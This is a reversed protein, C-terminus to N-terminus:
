AEIIGLHVNMPADIMISEVALITALSSNLLSEYSVCPKGIHISAIFSEVMKEQGKDQIRYKIKKKSGSQSFLIVEKFDNIQASLGSGFVEISEKPMATSGNSAYTISAISGNDFKLSLNVNDNLLPSKNSSDVGSVFISKIHSRALTSALDIFHCAEGILRGGGIDADQIWHDSAILGANVRINIVVAGDVNQFHELVKLSAPAFRRNFGVMLHSKSSSKYCRHIDILQPISLALPKEVYVQKGSMLADCVAQAHTNHRSAIVVADSSDTLLDDYVDSCFAFGFRKAVSSATRGSATVIGNLSVNKASQLYPLLSATAYNGAGFFSINVEGESHLTKSNKLTSKFNPKPSNEDYNLLIGLYPETKTGQILQYAESAKDIPFRHTILNDMKVVGESMLDLFAAMNRQETFRVYGIPYDNGGEEYSSDYRGPGYSRSIIVSIEKKFYDERPIDMKVAGVVVVRGKERIVRGCTEIIKNSSSGACVIVGDVGGNTYERCIYELKNQENVGIAGFKEALKVLEIDLDIGIAKCGNAKLLQVTIQGLLGLGIVLFCEGIKPEALRIGQLAISGITTFAASEVSVGMPIKAVLNKPVAVYEAHNAFEAGACAVRDGPQIGEVLGGVAVVTGSCSYGLPSPTNLRTSVTKFTKNFGEAKLKNFVQKVLDPRAKAKQLLSKNGIDIKTKETGASIVSVSNKVLIFKDDMNPVPVDAVEVLGTKLTQIVQKM